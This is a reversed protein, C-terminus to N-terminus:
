GRRDAAGARHGTSNTWDLAGAEIGSTGRARSFSTWARARRLGGRRLRSEDGSNGRGSWLREEAM